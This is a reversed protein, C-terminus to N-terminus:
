SGLYSPNCAHVVMNFQELMTQIGSGVHSDELIAARQIQRLEGGAELLCTAQSPKGHGADQLEKETRVFGREPNQEM